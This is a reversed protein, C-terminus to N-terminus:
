QDETRDNWEQMRCLCTKMGTDSFNGERDQEMFYVVGSGLCDECIQKGIYEMLGRPSGIFFLDLM